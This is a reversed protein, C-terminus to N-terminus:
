EGKERLTSLAKIKKIIREMQRQESVDWWAKHTLSIRLEKAIDMRQDLVKIQLYLIIDDKDNVKMREKVMADMYEKKGKEAVELKAKLEKNEAELSKHEFELLKIYEPKDCMLCYEGDKYGHKCKDGM